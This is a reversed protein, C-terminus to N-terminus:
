QHDIIAGRMLHAEGLHARERRRGHGELRGGLIVREDITAHTAKRAGLSLTGEVIPNREHGITRERLVGLHERCLV